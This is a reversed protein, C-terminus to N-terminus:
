TCCFVKEHYYKAYGFIFTPHYKNQRQTKHMVSCIKSYEIHFNSYCLVLSFFLFLFLYLVIRTKLNNTTKCSYFLLTFIRSTRRLVHAVNRCNSKYRYMIKDVVLPVVVVYFLFIKFLFWHGWISKLVFFFCFFLLIHHFYHTLIHEDCLLARFHHFSAFSISSSTPFACKLARYVNDNDDVYGFM